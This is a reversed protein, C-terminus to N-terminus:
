WQGAIYPGQLPKETKQDNVEEESVFTFGAPYLDDPKDTPLEEKSRVRVVLVQVSLCSVCVSYMYTYVAVVDSSQSM